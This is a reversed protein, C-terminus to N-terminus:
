AAHRRRRGRPSKTPKGGLIPPTSSTPDGTPDTPTDTPPGPDKTTPTESPTETPASSSPADSTKSPKPKPKKTPKPVIPAHGESPADGKVYAPPPLDEVPEGELAKLMVNTWTAAPYSGGFYSPLWDKLQENGKGRVYMVATALQPTYGAFWASSVEGKGNTATGTKGAAPRGLALAKTGSGQQVVQQLAYGVDDSVGEPIARHDTVKHSYRVEGDRDVVKEIIYADAAVGRNALTAYGNAMNIPSVTQSGLSVGTQPELAPTSTPFGYPPNAAKEPPIGMKNATDIIKQPGDDMALTMDIYATNISDQTAKIMNVRGYSHDGQNEVEGGGPLDYPSNGDFTDKLEFGDQIGAALAFPKFTSGAQGGSVAWNLQSELYDQGAYIGRVAGTGPEVSAVAVHLNKGFGEPREEKVGDKAANMAKKTFTTTIKLGGGNIEQESFGLRLLEKRVMTLVHGRQGGYQEDSKIKPFKPLAKRVSAVDSAKATGMDEMSDLVYQYRGLLRAEADEGNAPDLSYPNNLVAALTASQALTLDKADVDFYAQAAAQIGYAGRGFYITNLYGELIEQKSLQNKIKLSLIAEKAKRKWTREQTLYLIKVYQQTITSAGQQANGQANSFAARLIGKPDIGNDTWFSQNEAAVVADKMTQPMDDYAISDRKQVAFQGIESKGGDYYVRTTQTLFEENPNPIDVNKYAIWFGLVGLLGLVLATVLGWLTLRKLRQKWTRPARDGKKGSRGSRGSSSGGAKRKGEVM